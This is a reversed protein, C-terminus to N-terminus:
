RPVFRLERDRRASRLYGALDRILRQDAQRMAVAERFLILAALAGRHLARSQFIPFMERALRELRLSDRDRAYIEALQLSVLAADYPMGREIFGERVEALAREARPLLGLERDIEAAMWDLRLLNIRDGLREHLRRVADLLSRAAISYGTANLCSIANHAAISFTRPDREPRLLPLTELTTRLADAHRGEFLLFSGRKVLARGLREGLRQGPRGGPRERRYVALAEDLMEHARDFRQQDKYLSAELEAIRAGLVRDGTGRARHERAVGFSREAAAPDGAVRLANAHHAWARARLDARAPLDARGPQEAAAVALRTLEVAEDPQDFLRERGLAILSEVLGPDGFRADRAILGARAARPHSRLERLLTESDAAPAADHLGAVRPLADHLGAEHLGAEFVLPAPELM